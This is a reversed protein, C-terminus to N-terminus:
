QWMCKNQVCGCTVGYKMDDYCEKYECTTIIEGSETNGCVQNSCGGVLCDLNSNCANFSSTGCFGGLDKQKDTQLQSVCALTFLLALLYKM